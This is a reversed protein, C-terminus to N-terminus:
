YRARVGVFWQRGILDGYNFTPFSPGINTINNVGARVQYSRGFDYTASISHRGNEDVVPYPTTEITDFVNIKSKPLYYYEYSVQLPGRRYRVDTRAVWRPAVTTGAQQTSVGAVITKLDQNHTAEVGIELSGPDDFMPLVWSLPFRYNVNFVEGRFVVKAANFTTNRASIIFGNAPNVAFTSCLDAPQPSADFCGQVFNTPTFATLGNKLDVEIRDAVVTLDGPVYKPQWVFGFTVTDSIENQLDPNGGSTIMATVFNFGPDQFAALPGWQPNRAFIAQCNALRTAPAPGSNLVRQDCPNLIGGGLATTQPALLQNLTPARFNRSMSGRLRLGFGVTWNASVGWVRETGALSNDVVRYQGSIDASEVFPLTFDGGLVPVLVEGAFENTKFSGSTPATTSGTGTLGLQNALAPTNRASEERHEYSLNFKVQGAPAEFVDGGLSILVDDQTNQFHSDTPVTSYAQAAPTINGVGFPNLPACSPDDNTTVADANIRCVVQNSPNRVTDLANNLRANHIGWASTDGKVVSRTYFANYYFNREGLTFDGDLAVVGRYTDTTYVVERTPLLDEFAKSLFANGGSAFTPSAASLTAIAQSSLFPNARTFTIPASSGSGILWRPQVGSGLPDRGQNRGYLLEGSVKMHPTVDYHGLVTYTNTEVGSLLAALLNYAYGDGGTCFPIACAFPPAYPAGPNFAVVSAGDTSFQLTPKAAPNPVGNLSVVGSPNLLWFHPDAVPTVAPIGDTASTNRPNALTRIVPQTIARSGYYLPESKAWEVNLAINGRGDDFNRGATVRVSPREYDNRTTNGYQLDVTLGEFDQKLVYNIVGAIADSGYVAAGGAQVIDVRDVLGLPILNTDTVRDGLGTSSPATRRGDVLSLTRGPGLNFLNPFQQGSGAQAGSGAAAPTPLTVSTARSVLEGVNTAGRDLLDQQSIVAVPADTATDTRRIRSGTVVVEGLEQPAAAKDQAAAASQAWAPPAALALAAVGGSIM